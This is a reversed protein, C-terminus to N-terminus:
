LSKSPVFALNMVCPHYYYYYYYLSPLRSWVCVCWVIVSDCLVSLSSPVTVLVVPCLFIWSRIIIEDNCCSDTLGLSWLLIM